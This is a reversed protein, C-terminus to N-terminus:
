KHLDAIPSHRSLRFGFDPYVTSVWCFAIRCASRADDASYHWVGGRGTATGEAVARLPDTVADTGWDDNPARTVRDLCWEYIDGLTDYLGWQNPIVQGVGHTKDANGNYWMYKGLYSAPQTTVNNGFFTSTTTGARAAFEWQAETPLDLDTLGTKDRLTNLFAPAGGCTANVVGNSLATTNNIGVGDGRIMQYSVMEVPCAAKEALVTPDVEGEAPKFSAPNTAMVNEWQKQTIPFMGIYYPETLTVPHQTEQNHATDVNRGEEDEPSGMIFTGAPIKRLVIKDTKYEQTNYKNTAAATNAFAEYTVPYHEATPGESIDIVTYFPYPVQSKDGGSYVLQAKVNADKALIKVGDNFVVGEASVVWTVRYAGNSANILTSADLMEHMVYNTGQATVSFQVFYNTPYDVNEVTYDIDVMGNWPYRQQVRNLTISPGGEAFAGTALVAAGVLALMTKTINM